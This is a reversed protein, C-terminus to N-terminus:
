DVLSGGGCLEAIEAVDIMIPVVSNQLWKQGDDATEHQACSAALYRSAAIEILSFGRSPRRKPVVRRPRRHAHDSASRQSTSMRLDFWRAATVRAASKTEPEGTVKHFFDCIRAPRGNVGGRAAPYIALGVASARVLEDTGETSIEPTLGQWVLREAPELPQPVPWRM